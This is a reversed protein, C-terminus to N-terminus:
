AAGRSSPRHLSPQSDEVRSKYVCGWPPALDNEERTATSLTPTPVHPRPVADGRFALRDGDKSGPVLSQALPWSSRSVTGLKELTQAFTETEPSHPSHTPSCDRGGALKTVQDCTVEDYSVIAGKVSGSSCM